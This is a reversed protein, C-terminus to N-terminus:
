LEKNKLLEDSDLISEMNLTSLQEESLPANTLANYHRQTISLYWVGLGAPIIILGLIALFISDPLIRAENLFLYLGILLFLMIVSLLYYVRDEIHGTIIHIVASILQWVGIIFQLIMAIFLLSHLIMGILGCFFYISALIKQIVLDAKLLGINTKM